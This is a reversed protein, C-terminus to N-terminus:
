PILFNQFKSICLYAIDLIKNKFAEIKSICKWIFVSILVDGVSRIFAYLCISLCISLYISLYLYIYIYICICIFLM